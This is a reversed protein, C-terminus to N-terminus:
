ESFFTLFNLQLSIYIVYFAVWELMRAQFIGHVPGWLIPCLQAVLCLTYDPDGLTFLIM